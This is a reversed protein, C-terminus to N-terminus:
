FAYEAGELASGREAHYEWCEVLLLKHRDLVAATFADVDGAPGRAVIEGDRVTYTIRQDDLWILCDSFSNLPDLIQTAELHAEHAAACAPCLPWAYRDVLGCLLRDQVAEAAPSCHDM